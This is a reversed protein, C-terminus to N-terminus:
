VVAGQSEQNLSDGNSSLSVGVAWSPTEGWAYSGSHGLTSLGKKLINISAAIDRDETYGCECVHTRTSLSKKIRRECAPCDQSTYHPPVAITIKGFKWGFYEVWKRFQTWGADSISKSLRRNRVLNRVNLDEYVICDNSACVCRAVRKAHEERQRSVKLHLKAYSKRANHYNKSQKKGKQYKKSKRRNLRNLRKESKRYFRPNEEIYGNSDAYFYKLGMDLGIAKGTPQMDEKVEISIGLQCYYGDARRVLRVRKIQEPQYFYIDRSGVLKVRGIGIKDTFTINKKTAEDLKWGSQKYEVSRSHKKFKPYGAQHAHSGGYSSPDTADAKKGKVKQKSRGCASTEEAHATRKKCNDFFRAIGSWAREASSQRATSNLKDAFVYEKALIRCYKNLDYKNVKKNDMWYRLAKNRVFQGTRIAQDIALYQHPKAKIKYELIIM